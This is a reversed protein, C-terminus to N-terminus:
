VEDVKCDIMNIMSDKDISVIANYGADIVNIPSGDSFPDIVKNSGADIENFYEIIPNGTIIANSTNADINDGFIIVNNIGNAVNNNSGMIIANGSLTNSSGSVISGIGNPLINNSNGNIIANASLTNNTGMAIGSGSMQNTGNSSIAATNNNTIFNSVQTASSSSSNGSGSGFISGNGGNVSISKVSYKDAKILEVECLNLLSPNYGSIKNVRYYQGGSGLSFSSLNIYILDNFKFNYIDVPTLYMKVTIIYSNIGSIEDLYDKWYMNVLNRNSIYKGQYYIEYPTGFDLTLSPIYPDDQTGAYPYYNYTSLLNTTNDWISINLGGTLNVLKKYMIRPKIKFGGSDTTTTNAIIQSFIFNKSLDLEYPKMKVMPTPAFSVKIDKTGKLYENKSIEYKYSGYSYNYKDKYTKNLKDSDETYNFLTIKNQTEALLQRNIPQTHDVRDTWDRTNGANIYNSRPEINILGPIDKDNEYYLNFMKTINDIFESQKMEPLTYKMNMTGGPIVNSGIESYFNTNPTWIAERTLLTALGINTTFNVASGGITNSLKFTNTTANIIYYNLGTYLGSGGTLTSFFVITDNTLGHNNITITDTTYDSSISSAPFTKVPVAELFTGSATTGNWILSSTSITGGLIAIKNTIISSSSPDDPVNPLIFGSHWTKWRIVVRLQEGYVLPKYRNFADKRNDLYDTYLNIRAMNSPVGGTIAYDLRDKYASMFDIININGNPTNCSGDGYFEFWNNLGNGNPLQFGLGNSWNSDTIGTIPNISRYIDVRITDPEITGQGSYYTKSNLPYISFIDLNCVFRQNYTNINNNTYVYNASDWLNNGDYNNSQINTTEDNFRLVTGKHEGYQISSMPSTNSWWIYGGVWKGSNWKWTGNVNAELVQGVIPSYTPGGPHGPGPNPFIFPGSGQVYAYGNLSTANTAAGADILNETTSHTLTMSVKFKLTDSQTALGIPVDKYVSPMVLNSFTSSNLFNSRYAVSASAFILDWLFKVSIAPKFDTVQLRNVTNNINEYKWGNNYDIFPYYYGRENNWSDVINTLSYTHSLADLKLDTLYLGSIADALKYTADYLVCNYRNVGNEYTINTLQLYGNFVMIKDVLVQCKTKSNINFYEENYTNTEFDLDIISKFALYNNKTDPLTLTKSYAAKVASIDQIDSILYNIDFVSDENIDLSFAQNNPYLLLEINNIM